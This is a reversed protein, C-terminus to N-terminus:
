LSLRGRRGKEESNIYGLLQTVFQAEFAADLEQLLEKASEKSILKRGILLGLGDTADVGAGVIQRAAALDNDKLFASYSEEHTAALNVPYLLRAIAMNIGASVDMEAIRVFHRDYERIRLEYKGINERLAYGAGEIKHHIARAFTDEVFGYFYAPLFILVKEEGACLRVWLDRDHDSVFARLLAFDGKIVDGDPALSELDTLEIRRIDAFRKAAGSYYEDLDKPLVHPKGFKDYGSVKMPVWM